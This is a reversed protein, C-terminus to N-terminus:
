MGIPRHLRGNDMGVPALVAVPCQMADFLARSDIWGVMCRLGYGMFCPVHSSLLRFTDRRTVPKARVQGSAPVRRGGCGNIYGDLM